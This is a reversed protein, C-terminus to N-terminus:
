AISYYNTEKKLGHYYSIDLWSEKGAQAKELPKLCYIGQGESTIWISGDSALLCDTLYEAPCPPLQDSFEITRDKGYVSSLSILCAILIRQIRQHLKM